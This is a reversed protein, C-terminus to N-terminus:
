ELSIVGNNTSVTCSALLCITELAQDLADTRISGGILQNAKGADLEIDQDFAREVAEVVQWLPTQNFSIVGDMWSFGNSVLDASVRQLQDSADLVAGEAASLEVGVDPAEGKSLRVRGEQVMVETENHWTRVNFRTGLVTVEANQSEVVFPQGGPNVEFFAEGELVVRREDEDFTAPYLLRSGSNLQVVSQDALTVSLTEGRQTVYEQLEPSQPRLYWVLALLLLIIPFVFRSLSSFTTRTRRVAPRDESRPRIRAAVNAWGAEYDPEDLETDPQTVHWIEKLQEYQAQHKVSANLWTDLVAQEEASLQGEIKKLMLVEYTAHDDAM